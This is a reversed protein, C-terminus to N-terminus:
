PAAHEEVEIIHIGDPGNTLGLASVLPFPLGSM